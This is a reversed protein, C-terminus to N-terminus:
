TKEGFLRHSHLFEHKGRGCAYWCQVDAPDPPPPYYGVPNQSDIHTHSRRPTPRYYDPDPISYQLQASPCEESYYQNNTLNLLQESYEKQIHKSEAHTNHQDILNTDADEFQGNEM